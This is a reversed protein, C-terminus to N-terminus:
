FPLPLDLDISLLVSRFEEQIRELAEESDAEFRLTLSPTSHSARVLGWGDPYEVRLGDITTVRADPFPKEQLLREMFQTNHGQPMDVFLEPTSIGSPLKAFVETPSQRFGLLIELLRAGAYLADDFGYWREKFFFHGSMEGALPADTEKLKNKMLSHGAKWLLPKGGLKEIMKPLHSTSKVDYIIESGPNRALIDKAFIMMLRDPWIINGEADVVGLRDGDGDFALGLDAEQEQV